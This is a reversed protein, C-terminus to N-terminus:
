AGKLLIRVARALRRRLLLLLALGVGLGIAVPLPFAWFSTEATLTQQPSGYLAGLRAKYYIGWLQKQPWIVTIRREGGPFVNRPDIPIEAVKRNFLNYITVFGVPKVHVNGNNKVELDFAVPGTSFYKKVTEENLKEDAAVLIKTKGDSAIVENWKGVFTKPVFKQIVADEKSQGSVKVLLLSGLRQVISSGTSDRQDSAITGVLVTGYHGGPEANQPVNIQFTVIQNAKPGVTFRKPTPVVWRSLSFETEEQTIEVQGQEGTGSINEVRVELQLNADTLNQVKIQNTLTDGPNATLEFTVPSISLQTAQQANAVIPTSLPGLLISLLIGVLSLRIYNM